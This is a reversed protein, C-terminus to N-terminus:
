LMLSQLGLSRLYMSCSGPADSINESCQRFGTKLLAENGQMAMEEVPTTCISLVGIPAFNEQKRKENLNSLFDLLELLILQMERWALKLPRRHRSPFRPSAIVGICFARGPHLRMNMFCMPEAPQEGHQPRYALIWYSDPTDFRLDPNLYEEQVDMLLSEREELAKELQDQETPLQDDPGICHVRVPVRVTTMSM